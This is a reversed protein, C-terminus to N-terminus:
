EGDSSQELLGDILINLQSTLQADIYLLESEAICGGSEVTEDAVIDLHELREFQGLLDERRSVMNELDVPNVRVVISEQGALNELAGRVVRVVVEPDTRAERQLLKATVLRVLNLVQAQLSEDFASREESLQTALQGLVEGAEGILEAFSAESRAEGRRLGEAYAEEVKKEAEARAAALISAPDVYSSRGADDPNISELPNRVYDSIREKEPMYMKIIKTM